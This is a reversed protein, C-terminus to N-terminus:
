QIQVGIKKAGAATTRWVQIYDIMEAKRILGDAELEDCMSAAPGNCTLCGDDTLGLRLLSAGICDPPLLASM